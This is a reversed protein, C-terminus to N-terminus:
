TIFPGILSHFADAQAAFSQVKIPDRTVHGQDICGEIQQRLRHAHPGIPILNGKDIVGHEVTGGSDTQIVHIGRALAERIALGYTEKWQSPFLLVDIQRYFQDLDAQGFRPVVQWDGPLGGFDRGQWWSGDLSGEVLLVRFDDRGLAAFAERIMPWGKIPSPGGLYGFVVTEDAACRAKVDDFFGAGPLHVGNEWIVGNDVSFGSREYLDKAFASPYTVCVARSGVERLHDFRLKAAWYNEACGKCAEVQVPDQGCYTQDIRVMFQRECLWWFDHVSLVVPIGAGQAATFIGTGIDQLCHAHILDPRLVDVLEALRMTVNPNDYIEGYSRHPPLNILYNTIGAKETKLVSYPALDSRVCTSVVTVDYRGRQILQQAVEEAVITAGGYSFPAFYVNAILIHRPRM